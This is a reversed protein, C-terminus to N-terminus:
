RQLRCRDYKDDIFLHELSYFRMRERDQPTALIDFRGELLSSLQPLISKVPVSLRHVINGLLALVLAGDASNTSNVDLCDNGIV